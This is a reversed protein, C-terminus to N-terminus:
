FGYKARLEKIVEAGNRTKGNEIEEESKSLKKVTEKNFINNRYEEISMVAVNNKNNKETVIEGNKNIDTEIEKLNKVQKM